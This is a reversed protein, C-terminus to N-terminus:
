PLSYFRAGAPFRIGATWGTAVDVSYNMGYIPNFGLLTFLLCWAEVAMDDYM